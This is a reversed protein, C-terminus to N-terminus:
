STQLFICSYNNAWAVILIICCLAELTAEDELGGFVQLPLQLLQLRHLDLDSNSNALM